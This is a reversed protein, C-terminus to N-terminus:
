LYGGSTAVLSPGRLAIFVQHLLVLVFCFRALLKGPLGTTLVECKGQLPCPNSGQDPSFFIGCAAHCPWFNFFFFFFTARPRYCSNYVCLHAIKMIVTVKSPFLLGPSGGAAHKLCHLFFLQSSNSSPLTQASSSLTQRASPVAEPVTRGEPWLPGNGQTGKM